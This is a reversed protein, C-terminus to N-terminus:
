YLINQMNTRFTMLNDDTDFYGVRTGAGPTLPPLPAGGGETQFWQFQDKSMINPRRVCAGYREITKQLNDLDEATEALIQEMQARVQRDNIFDFYDPPYARGVIVEELPQWSTYSNIRNTM